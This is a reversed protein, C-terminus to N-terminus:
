YDVSDVGWTSALGTPFVAAQGKRTGDANLFWVHTKGTTTNFWVIDPTDDADVDKVGAIVWGSPLNIDFVPGHSKRTGDSNLFWIYTRRTNRNFWVIDAPGDGDIDAVGAVEWGAPLNIDFVPGHSKRTGDSNLFWIYARNSNRNRWVIDPTGDTDVDALGAIEWGAPLNLDYLPGHSDRTGDSALFWVYARNSDRNRWLVDPVGDGNIDGVADVQWTTALNVDSVAQTGKRYGDPDLFWIFLRGTSTNHWIIDASGDQDVDGTGAIIWGLALNLDYVATGGKRAGSDGLHWIYARNSSRNRWYIRGRGPDPTAVAQNNLPEAAYTPPEEDSVMPDAGLVTRLAGEGSIEGVSTWALDDDVGVVESAYFVVDAPPDWQMPDEAEQDEFLGRFWVSVLDEEVVTDTTWNMWEGMPTSWQLYYPATSDTGVQIKGDVVRLAMAPRDSSAWSVDSALGLLAFALLLACITRTFGTWVIRTM